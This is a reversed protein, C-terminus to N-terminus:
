CTSHLILVVRAGDKRLEHYFDIAAPTALVHVRIGPISRVDPDVRVQRDWGCGIVVDVDRAGEGVIREVEARDIRHTKDRFRLLGDEGIVPDLLPIPLVGYVTLGFRAHVIRAPWVLWSFPVAVLALLAVIAFFRAARPRRRLLLFALVALLLGGAVAIWALSGAFSYETLFQRALYAVVLAPGLLSLSVFLSLLITV